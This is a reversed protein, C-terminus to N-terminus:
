GTNVKSIIVYSTKTQDYGSKALKRSGPFTDEEAEKAGTLLQKRELQVSLLLSCFPVREGRFSFKIFQNQVKHAATICKQPM